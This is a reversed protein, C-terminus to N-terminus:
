NDSAQDNPNAFLAKMEPSLPFRLNINDPPIPQMFWRDYLQEAKGSREMGAIVDDALKKFVPDGKCMMCVYSGHALPDGTVM